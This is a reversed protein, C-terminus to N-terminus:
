AFLSVVIVPDADKGIALLLVLSSSSIATVKAGVLVAKVIM